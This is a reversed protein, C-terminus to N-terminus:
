NAKYDNVYKVAPFIVYQFELEASEINGHYIGHGSLMHEGAMLQKICGATSLLWATTSVKNVGSSDKSCEKHDIFIKSSVSGYSGSEDNSLHKGKAYANIIIVSDHELNINKDIYEGDTYEEINSVYRGKEILGYSDIVSQIRPIKDQIKAVAVELDSRTVGGLFRIIDDSKVSGIFSVITLTVLSAVVSPIIKDNIMKAGALRSVFICIHTRASYCAVIRSKVGIRSGLERLALFGLFGMRAAAYM